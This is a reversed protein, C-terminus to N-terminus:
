VLFILFGLTFSSVLNKSVLLFVYKQAHHVNVMVVVADVLMVDM